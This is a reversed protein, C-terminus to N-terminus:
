RIAANRQAKKRLLKRRLKGAERRVQQSDSRKALGMLDQCHQHEYRASLQIRRIVKLMELQFCEVAKVDTEPEIVPNLCGTLCKLAAKHQRKVLQQLDAKPMAQCVLPLARGPKCNSPVTNFFDTLKGPKPCCM